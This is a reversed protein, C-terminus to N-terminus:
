LRAAEANMQAVFADISGADHQALAIAADNGSPLLLGYLMTQLRVHKHLPLVGVKSGAAEVAAKTVLVHADPPQSEVTLLATMMKTISAIHLRAYPNRQWLIQGTAVNFLLGARPPHRFAIHVADREPQGIGALELPPKGLPLGSASLAPKVLAKVRPAGAHRSAASAAGHHPSSKSLAAAAAAVALVALALVGALTARRRRRRRRALDRRRRSQEFTM